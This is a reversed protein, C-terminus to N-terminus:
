VADLEEKHKEYFDFLDKNAGDSLRREVTLRNIIHRRRKDTEYGLLLARVEPTPTLLRCFGGLPTVSTSEGKCQGIRYFKLTGVYVLTATVKTVQARSYVIKGNRILKLVAEDTANLHSIDYADRTVQEM